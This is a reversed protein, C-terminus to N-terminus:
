LMFSVGHDLLRRWQVRGPYDTIIGDVGLAVMRDIDAIENVTWVNVMLCCERAKGGAM